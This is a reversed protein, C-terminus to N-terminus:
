PWRTGHDVSGFSTGCASAHISRPNTAIPGFPRSRSARTSRSRSSFAGARVTLGYRPARWPERAHVVDFEAATPRGRRGPGSCARADPSARLPGARFTSRPRRPRWRRVIDHFVVEVIMVSTLPITGGATGVSACGPRRPPRRPASTGGRAARRDEDRAARRQDARSRSRQASKRM